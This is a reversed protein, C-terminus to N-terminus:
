YTLVYICNRFLKYFMNSIQTKNRRLRHPYTILLNDSNVADESKEVIFQIKKGWGLGHRKGM